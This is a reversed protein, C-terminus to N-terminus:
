TAPGAVFERLDAALRQRSDPGLFPLHGSAYSRLHVREADMPVRSLAYETAGAPSQLDFLGTCVMVELQRNRRMAAALDEAHNGPLVVGPGCGYDWARNVRTFDIVRYEEDREIGAEERLYATIVSAFSPLYQGMAPDDAVPDAGRGALPLVYRSDYSGVQNGQDALLLDAFEPGSLRLNHESIVDAPIGILEHMRAATAARHPGDIRTGAFLAPLYEGAAFQRAALVHEDLEARSSPLQKHYWATAALSPLATACGIDGEFRHGLAPGVMIIGNLSFGELRGTNTPGGCSMRAVVAARAAGYSEGLLFRPANERRRIRSWETILRVTAIADPEVGYFDPEQQETLVRSFGTGPPDIFVLDAVDLLCEPNDALRFPPATRPQLLDADATRRPGLGLHLWASSSGPGGNLAFIVPRAPRGALCYSVCLCRAGPRGTRDPVIIEEAGVEYEMTHGGFSGTLLLPRSM